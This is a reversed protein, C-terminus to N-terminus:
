RWCLKCKSESITIKLFCVDKPQSSGDTMPLTIYDFPCPSQEPWQAATSPTHPLHYKRPQQTLTVPCFDRQRSAPLFSAISVGRHCSYPSQPLPQQSNRYGASSIRWFLHASFVRNKGSNIFFFSTKLKRYINSFFYNITVYNLFLKKSM